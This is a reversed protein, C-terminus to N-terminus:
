VDYYQDHTGLAPCGLLVYSREKCIHHSDWRQLCSGSAMGGSRSVSVSPHQRSGSCLSIPVTNSDMDTNLIPTMLIPSVLGFGLSFLRAPYRLAKSSNDELSSLSQSFTFVTHDVKNTWSMSSETVKVDTLPMLGNGDSRCRIRRRTKLPLGMNKWLWVELLPMMWAKRTDNRGLQGNLIQACRIGRHWPAQFRPTDSSNDSMSLRTLNQSCNNGELYEQVLGLDDPSSAATDSCTRTQSRGQNAFSHCTDYPKLNIDKPSATPRIQGMSQIHFKVVILRGNFILIYTQFCRDHTALGWQWWPWHEWGLPASIKKSLCDVVDLYRAFQRRPHGLISNKSPQIWLPGLLKKASSLQISVWRIAVDTTSAASSCEFSAFHM